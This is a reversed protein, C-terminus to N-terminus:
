AQPRVGIKSPLWSMSSHSFIAGLDLSDSCPGFLTGGNGVLMWRRDEAFPCYMMAYMYRLVDYM